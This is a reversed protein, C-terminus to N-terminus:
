LLKMKLLQYAVHAVVDAKSDMPQKTSRSKQEVCSATINCADPAYWFSCKSLWETQSHIIRFSILLRISKNQHFSM